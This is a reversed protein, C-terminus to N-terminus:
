AAVWIAVQGLMYQGYIRRNQVDRELRSYHGRWGNVNIVGTGETTLHTVMGGLPGGRLLVATPKEPRTARAKLRRMLNKIQRQQETM